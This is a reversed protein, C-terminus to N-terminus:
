GFFFSLACLLLVGVTLRFPLLNGRAGALVWFDAEEKALTM